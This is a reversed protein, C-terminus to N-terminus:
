KRIYILIDLQIGIYRIKEVCVLLFRGISLFPPPNLLTPFVTSIISQTKVTVFRNLLFLFFRFWSMSFYQKETNIYGGIDWVTCMSHAHEHMYLTCYIHTYRQYRSTRVHSIHLQLSGSHKKTPQAEQSYLNVRTAVSLHYQCIM